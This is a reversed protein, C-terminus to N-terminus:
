STVLGAKAESKTEILQSKGIRDTLWKRARYLRSEVGRESCGLVTAIERYSLDQYYHLLLATKLKHPMRAVARRLAAVEERQSTMSAPDDKDILAAPTAQVTGEETELTMEPHRRRWRLQNRSLNAAIRFIWGSFRHNPDFRDRARYVRLFTEQTLEQATEYNQVYRYIFSLLPREWRDILEEMATSVGGVLQSMLELDRQNNEPM